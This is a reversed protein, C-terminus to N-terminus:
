KFEMQYQLDIGLIDTTTTQSATASAGSSTSTSTSVSFQDYDRQEYSGLISVNRNLKYEVKVDNSSKEGFTRGLSTSFQPTWQKEAIFKPMVTNRTDDVTQSLRVTVGAKRKFDQILPNQQLIVSGAQYGQLALQDSSKNKELNEDTIGLALLSIISREPLAPSSSLKIEHKDLNGQYLLNIDWERVRASGVAYVNPNNENPNNFKARGVSLIFPTERFYFKGNPLTNIEGTLISHSPDGKIHLQGTVDSELLSNKITVSKPFNVNLDLNISSSVKQSLVDPLFASKKLLVSNEQDGFNKTYLGSEVVYNAHITYPWWNGSISFEGSGKTTLGEPINLTTKQLDGSLEIPIDRLGKITINGTANLNGGGLVGKLSNVVIKSQSFILDSNIDEFAHPFEKLKFTAKNIYATGLFEPKETTGAIQSNIKLSGRMDKFFPTLFTFLSLDLQGNINLNLNDKKSRQGDISIETNDGTFQLSEVKVLGDDFTVLIQSSNEMQASGHRVYLKPISIQGKSEWFNGNESVLDTKITLNTEYDRKFEAGSLQSLFPSFDWQNAELKFSFQSGKKKPRLLVINVQNGLLQAFYRENEPSIDITFNSNEIREQNLNAQSISGKLNIKPDLIKDTLQAEVQLKGELSPFLSKVQEFDSLYLNNGNVSLNMIGKNTVDGTLALLGDGKKFTVLDAVANGNNGSVNFTISQFTENFVFGNSFQSKLKYNLKSLDLPGNATLQAAGFGEAKIKFDLKRSFALELESLNLKSFNMNTEVTGNDLYLLLQGNFESAPFKGLINDFYLKSKEFRLDFSTNGLFYDEFWLNNTTIKSTVKATSGNGKTNGNLSVAGEYKLEALSKINKFDLSDSQFDFSFGEDFHINGKARGISDGISIEGSPFEMNGNQMIFRSIIKINPINVITKNSPTSVKLDKGGVEGACEMKFAPLYIGECAAKLFTDFHLNTTKIGLNDLTQRLELSETAIRGSFKTSTTHEFTLDKLLINGANTSIKLADSTVINNSFNLKTYVNGINFQEIKLNQADLQFTGLPKLNKKQTALLDFNLTGSIKPLELNPMFNKIKKIVDEAELHALTRLSINDWNLSLVPGRAVGRAMLFSSGLSLKIASVELANSEAIIRAAFGIETLSKEQKFKKVITEPSFIEIKAATTTKEFNIGFRNVKVYLQAPDIKAQIDADQIIIKRIPLNIIDDWPIKFSSASTTKEQDKIFLNTRPNKILVKGIEFRGTIIAGPNLSVELTEIKIPTFVEQDSKKQPTVTVNEFSVGPPFLKFGLQEAKIEFGIQVRTINQMKSLLWKKLVPMERSYIIGSLIFLSSFIFYKAFRMIRKGM